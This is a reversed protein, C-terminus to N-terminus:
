PYLDHDSARWPRRQSSLISIHVESIKTDCEYAVDRLDEEDCFRWPGHDKPSFEKKDARYGLEVYDVGAEVLGQFVDKVMSKDFEWNNMLGGDRITCDLIKIEPRYM